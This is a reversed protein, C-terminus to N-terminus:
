SRKFFRENHSEKIEYNNQSPIGISVDRVYGKKVRAILKRKQRASLKDTSFTVTVKESKAIVRGKLSICSSKLLMSREDDEPPGAYGTPGVNGQIGHDGVPGSVGTPESFFTIPIAIAAGAIKALQKIFSKRNM